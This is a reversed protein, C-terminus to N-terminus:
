DYITICKMYYATVAVAIVRQPFPTTETLGLILNTFNDTSSSLLTHINCIQIMKILIGDGRIVPIVASSAM